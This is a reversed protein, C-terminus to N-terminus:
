TGGYENPADLMVRTWVDQMDLVRRYTRVCVFAKETMPHGWIPADTESKFCKWNTQKKTPKEVFSLTGKELPRYTSYIQRHNTVM